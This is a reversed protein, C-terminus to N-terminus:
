RSCFRSPFLTQGYLQFREEAPLRKMRRGEPDFRWKAKWTSSAPARSNSAIAPWGAVSRAAGAPPKIPLFPRKVWSGRGTRPSRVIRAAPSPIRRGGQAPAFYRSVFDYSADGPATVIVGKRELRGIAALDPALERVALASPLLALYNLGDALV